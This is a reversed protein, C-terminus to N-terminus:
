AGAACPEDMGSSLNVVDAPIARQDQETFGIRAHTQTHLHIRPM